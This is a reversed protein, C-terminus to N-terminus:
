SPKDRKELFFVVHLHKKICVENKVLLATKEITVKELQENKAALEDKLKQL